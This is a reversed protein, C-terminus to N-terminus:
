RATAQLGKGIDSSAELTLGLKSVANSASYKVADRSAGLRRSIEASPTCQSTMARDSTGTFALLAHLGIASIRELESPVTTGTIQRRHPHRIGRM